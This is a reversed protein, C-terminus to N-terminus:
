QADGAGAADVIERYLTYYAEGMRKGTFLHEYRERAVAGMDEATQPHHALYVMAEKLARADEPPVVIGTTLHENIYSTGTGIEASVLPRGYMAGELLSIGFAESRLHSPLVLATCCKILAVKQRDSVRGLFRVNRMGRREAERQLTRGLPGAGAVVLELDTGAVANLLIHLGKYYRLAGLFLFFREGGVLRVWKLDDESVTPYSSEDLCIPIVRVKRAHHNLVPSTMAYAPSTAIIRDAKELFWDMLPRYCKSLLRQRVIDSHYTLVTAAGPRHWLHLLDAFPWPFHYHIVDAWQALERFKFWAKISVGNSAVQWTLPFRHVQAEPRVVVDPAANRSLTLVRSEVGLPGTNRCIQRICEEIGGQSDPFYTRYVHLVNMKKNHM